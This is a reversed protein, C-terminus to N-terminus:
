GLWPIALFNAGRIVFVGTKKRMDKAFISYSVSFSAHEVNQGGVVEVIQRTNDFVFHMELKEIIRTQGPHIVFESNGYSMQGDAVQERHVGLMHNPFGADFSRQVHLQIAPFFATAEGVNELWFELQFQAQAGAYSHRRWKTKLELDPVSVRRFADEIDVHEMVYSSSGSRKFYQKQDSAESRHPRRDSRPVEIVLYGSNQDTSSPFGAVRIGNHKPQLLDGVASNVASLAAKWDPIPELANACDVGESNKRCDVGFMLVGGASNSFASLAKALAARGEKTLKGQANFVPAQQGVGPSKFDLTLGEQMEAKIAEALLAEGRAVLEDFDM